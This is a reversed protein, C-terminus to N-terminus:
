LLTVLAMINFVSSTSALRLKKLSKNQRHSAGRMYSSTIKLIITVSGDENQYNQAFLQWQPGYVALGYVMWPTSFLRVMQKMAPLPVIRRKFNRKLLKFNWPLLKKLLSGFKLGYTKFFSFGMSKGLQSLAMLSVIHFSTKMSDDEGIEEYSEEPKTCIMEVKHFQYVSWVVLTVSGAESRPENLNLDKGDRNRERYYNDSPSATSILVYNSLWKLETDEGWGQHGTGFMSDHYSHTIHSLINMSM